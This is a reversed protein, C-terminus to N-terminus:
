SGWLSARLQIIMVHIAVPADTAPLPTGRELEGAAVEVDHKWAALFTQWAKFKSLIFCTREPGDDSSPWSDLSKPACYIRTNRFQEKQRSRNRIRYIWEDSLVEDLTTFIHIRCVPRVVLTPFSASLTAFRSYKGTRQRPRWHCASSRTLQQAPMSGTKTSTFRWPSCTRAVTLHRASGGPFLIM